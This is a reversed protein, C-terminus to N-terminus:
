LQVSEQDWCPVFQRAYIPEFDTVFAYELHDVGSVKTRFLGALNANVLGTYKIFLKHNGPKISKGLLFVLTQNESYKWHKVEHDDLHAEHIQDLNEFGGRNFLFVV